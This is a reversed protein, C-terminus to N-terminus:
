YNANWLPKFTFGIAGELTPICSTNTYDWTVLADGACADNDYAVIQWGDNVVNKLAYWPVGGM